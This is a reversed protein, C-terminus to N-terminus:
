ARLNLLTPHIQTGTLATPNPRAKLALSFRGRFDRSSGDKIWATNFENLVKRSFHGQM